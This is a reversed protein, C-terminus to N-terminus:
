GSIAQGGHRMRRPSPFSDRILRDDIYVKGRLAEFDLDVRVRMWTGLAFGETLPLDVPFQEDDSILYIKGDDGNFYVSNFQLPGELINEIFGVSASSNPTDIKVSVEYSLRDPYTEGIDIVASQPGFTDGLFMPFDMGVGSTGSGAQTVM